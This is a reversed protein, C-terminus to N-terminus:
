NKEDAFMEKMCGILKLMDKATNYEDYHVLEKIEDFEKKMSNKFDGNPLGEYREILSIVEKMKAM